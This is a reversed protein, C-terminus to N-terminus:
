KATWAKLFESMKDYNYSKGEELDGTNQSHLLKGDKELVFIHPYGAVNPYKSLFTENKNDPSYNIKLMIFNKERYELLDKKAVFYEDMYRCWICWKGGIELLIRKGTKTAEAIAEQLDKEADREPDYEHVPSYTKKTVTATSKTTKPKSSSTKADKPKGSSKTKTQAQVSFPVFLIIALLIFKKM